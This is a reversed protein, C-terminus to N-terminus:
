SIIPKSRKGELGIRTTTYVQEVRARFQHVDLGQETMLADGGRLNVGVDPLLPHFGDDAAQSLLSKSRTPSKTM